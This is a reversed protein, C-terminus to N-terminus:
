FLSTTCEMYVEFFWIYINETSSNTTVKAFSPLQVELSVDTPRTDRVRCVGISLAPIRWAALRSGTPEAALRRPHLWTRDRGGSRKKFTNDNNEWISGERWGGELNLPVQDHM